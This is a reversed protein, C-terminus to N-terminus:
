FSGNLRVRGIVDGAGGAVAETAVGILTNTTATKTAEKISPRQAIRAYSLALGQTLSLQQSDPNREQIATGIMVTGSAIYVPPRLRTFVFASGAALIAALVILWWWRFIPRLYVELERSNM